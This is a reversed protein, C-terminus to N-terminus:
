INIKWLPQEYKKRQIKKFFTECPVDGDVDFLKQLNWNYGICINNKNYWCKPCVEKAKKM